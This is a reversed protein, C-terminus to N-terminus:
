HTMVIREWEISNEKILKKLVANATDDNLYNTMGIYRALEEKEKCSITIELKILSDWGNIMTDKVFIRFLDKMDSELVWKFEPNSNGLYFDRVVVSSDEENDAYEVDDLEKWERNKKKTSEKDRWIYIKCSLADSNYIGKWAQNRGEELEDEEDYDKKERLRISLEEITESQLDQMAILEHVKEITAQLRGETVETKKHLYYMYWGAVCSSLLFSLAISSSSPNTSM